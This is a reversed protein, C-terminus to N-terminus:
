VVMECIKVNFLGSDNFQLTIPQQEILWLHRILRDITNKYLKVSFNNMVYCGTNVLYGFSITNEKKDAIMELDDGFWGDQVIM